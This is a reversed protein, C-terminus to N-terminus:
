KPSDGDGELTEKPWDGTTVYTAYARATKSAAETKLLQDAFKRAATQNALSKHLFTQVLLRGAQSREDYERDSRKEFRQLIDDVAKKGMMERLDFKVQAIDPYLAIAKELHFAASVTEDAATLAL